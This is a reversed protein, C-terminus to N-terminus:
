SAQERPAVKRERQGAVEAAKALLSAYEQGFVKACFRVAAEVQSQRFPRDAPGAARLSDILQRTGTDLYHELENFCRTTMESIALEGAFNRCTSVLEILADTDDVDGSDLVSGVVIDNAPRPRLLRRMRGPTSEIRRKLMGSVEARVAALRRSWPSDGV